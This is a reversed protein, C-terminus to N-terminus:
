CVKVSCHLILIVIEYLYNVNLKKQSDLDSKGSECCHNRMTTINLNHKLIFM